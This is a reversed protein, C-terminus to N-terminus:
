AERRARPGTRLVRRPRAAFVSRRDERIRQAHEFALAIRTWSPPSWWMRTPWTTFALKSASGRGAQEVEAAAVAPQVEILRRDARGAAQHLPPRGCSLRRRDVLGAGRRWARQRVMRRSRRFRAPRKAPPMLSMTSPTRSSEALHLEELGHLLIGGGVWLMAATGVGVPREAAEPRYPRAGRRRARRLGAAGGALHLGIDDLKVILRSSAM